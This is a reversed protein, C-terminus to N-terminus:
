SHANPPSNVRSSRPSEMEMKAQDEQDTLVSRHDPLNMKLRIEKVPNGTPLRRRPDKWGCLEGSESLYTTDKATEPYRIHLGQEQGCREEVLIQHEDGRLQRQIYSGSSLRYTYENSSNLVLSGM